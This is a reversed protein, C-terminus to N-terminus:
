PLVVESSDEDGLIKDVKDLVENSKEIAVSLQEKVEVLDGELSATTSVVGDLTQLKKRVDKMILNLNKASEVTPKAIDNTISQVDKMSEKLTHLSTILSQTSEKDGTISTLLADNKALKKSFKNLNKLMAFLDSDESAMSAAIIDISDIIKIIKKVVPDLREIMDNIDDSQTIELTAGAKLLPRDLKTDVVIYTSGILPKKITLFTGERIWKKNNEDVLFCIMVSGDDKLSINDIVGISFGSFKLPMGVSFSEASKINFFYKYKKEFFGKEDLIFYLSGLVVLVLSLVFLGVALKIKNYQM